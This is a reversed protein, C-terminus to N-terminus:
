PAKGGNGLEPRLWIAKQYEAQAEQERGAMRLAGALNYHTLAANPALRLAQEDREIAEAVRGSRVLAAGLNACDDAFDPKFRLALEYQTIAEATRHSAMLANGLRYRQDAYRELSMGAVFAASFILSLGWAARGAWLWSRRSALARELGLIGGVALLALAPLFDMEYRSCNGYFLCLTLASTGFLVAAAVVFGRLAARAGEPRDRWALPAAGAFLLVPINALVGFPDEVPGHGAPPTLWKAIEGVFPFHGSWQAPELFYVWVNFGFFDPSFHQATDQRYLGLQYHEGFDAASGFRQQNYIMIGIGCLVLPGLACLLLRGFRPPPARFRWGIPVFLLLAGFLLSPRSGIALGMALSAAALWWARKAEDHWARWIAGLALMSLAYGCAIPVEWVDAKQL